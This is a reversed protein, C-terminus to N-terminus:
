SVCQDAQSDKTMLEFIYWQKLFGSMQQHLYAQCTIPWNVACSQDGSSPTFM